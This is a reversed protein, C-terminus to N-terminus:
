RHRYSFNPVAAVERDATAFASAPYFVNCLLKFGLTKYMINHAPM